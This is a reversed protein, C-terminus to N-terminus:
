DKPYKGEFGKRIRPLNMIVDCMFGAWGCKYEKDHSYYNVVKAFRNLFVADIKSPRKGKRPGAPMVFPDDADYGDKRWPNKEPTGALMDIYDMLAEVQAEAAFYHARYQDRQLMFNRVHGNMRDITANANDLSRNLGRVSGYLHAEYFSDFM